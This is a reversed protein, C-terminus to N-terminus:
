PQTIVVVKFYLEQAPINSNIYQVTVTYGYYFYDVADGATLVNAAPLPYYTTNLKNLTTAVYVDVISTNPSTLGKVGNITFNYTTTPAANDQPWANSTAPASDITTYYSSSPGQPGQAGQPGTPGAVDKTCANFVFAAVALISLYKIAKM